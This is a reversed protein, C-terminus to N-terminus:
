RNKYFVRIPRHAVGPFEKVIRQERISFVAINGKLEEKSDPHDYGLYIYENDTSFSMCTIEGDVEAVADEPLQPDTSRYSWRYLKGGQSYFALKYLGNVIMRTNRTLSLKDTTYTFEEPSRFAGLIFHVPAFKTVKVSSANQRNRTVLYLRKDDSLLLNIIEENAYPVSLSTRQNSLDVCRITRSQDDVFFCYEMSGNLYSFCDDYREDGPFLRSSEYLISLKIDFSAVKGEDGLLLFMSSAMGETGCLMTPRLWPLQERLDIKGILDFTRYDFRYLTQEKASTIFMEKGLKVADTPDDLPFAPNVTEFASQIFDSVGGTLVEAENRRRMIATRGKGEEDKSLIFLGEEYAAEVYVVFQRFASGDENSVRLRVWYEGLQKFPYKLVPDHSLYKLSDQRSSENIKEIYSARWEYQLEQGEISQKVWATPDITADWGFEVHMTDQGPPVDITIRSLVKNGLTSEDRICSAYLLIFLSTCYVIIRKM